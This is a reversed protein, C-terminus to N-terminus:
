SHTPGVKLMYGSDLEKEGRASSSSQDLSGADRVWIIAAAESSAEMGIGAEGGTM